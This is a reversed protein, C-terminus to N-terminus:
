DSDRDRKRKSSKKNKKKRKRDDSKRREKREKKTKKDRKRRKDSRTSSSADSSSPSRQSRKRYPVLQDEASFMTETLSKDLNGTKTRNTEKADFEDDTTESSDDAVNYISKYVEMSPRAKVDLGDVDRGETETTEIAKENLPAVKVKAMIEDQFYAEERTRSEKPQAVVMSKTHEPPTVHFRKCLLPEPVFIIATRTISIKKTQSSKNETRDTSRTLAQSAEYNAATSLGAVPVNLTEMVSTSTVFRSSMDTRVGDFIGKQHLRTPKNVAANAKLANEVISMKQESSAALKEAHSLAQIVLPHDEASFVHPQVEYGDPLAPGPFRHSTAFSSDTGGLVFGPLVPRGDSTVAQKKVGGEPASASAWASLVSGLVSAVGKSGNSNRQLSVKEEDSSDQHEYAVNDYNDQDINVKGTLKSIDEEDDYADDEDEHLAFGGVSKSGVFDNETEFSVYPDDEDIEKTTPTFSEVKTGGIADAVRYVKRRNAQLKRRKERDKEFEPANAFREFGLGAADLKPQPIEVKIQGLQIKRLRKASLFLQEETNDADFTSASPVFASSSSERWGLARLLQRGVNAPPVVAGSLLSLTPQNAEGLQFAAHVASPGGWENHDQEDMFDEPRQEINEEQRPTWGERSGVTNFYGASFGGRFAGHLRKQRPIYVPKKDSPM